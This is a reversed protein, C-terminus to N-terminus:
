KRADRKIAVITSQVHAIQDRLRAIEGSQESEVRTREERRTLDFMHDM